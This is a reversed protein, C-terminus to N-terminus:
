FRPVRMRGNTELTLADPWGFIREYILLAVCALVVMAVFKVRKWSPPNQALRKARLLWRINM